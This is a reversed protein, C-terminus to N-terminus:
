DRAVQRDVDIIARLWLSSFILAPIIEPGSFVLVHIFATLLLPLFHSGSVPLHGRDQLFSFFFILLSAWGVEPM